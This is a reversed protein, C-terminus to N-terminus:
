KAEFISKAPVTTSMRRLHGPWGLQRQDIFEVTFKIKLTYQILDNRIRDKAVGKVRRLYKM